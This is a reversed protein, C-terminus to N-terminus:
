QASLPWIGFCGAWGSAMPDGESVQEMWLAGVIPSWFSPIVDCQLVLASQKILHSSQKVQYLNNISFALIFLTWHM